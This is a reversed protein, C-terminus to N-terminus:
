QKGEVLLFCQCFLILDLQLINSCQEFDLGVELFVYKTMMEGFEYSLNVLLSILDLKSDAHVNAFDSAYGISLLNLCKIM